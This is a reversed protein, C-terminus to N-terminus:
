PERFIVDNVLFLYSELKVRKVRSTRSLGGNM